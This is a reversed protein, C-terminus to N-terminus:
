RGPGGSTVTTGWGDYVGGDAEALRNFRERLSRLAGLEPVLDRTAFCLWDEGDGERSVETRFGESELTHAARLAAPQDPFYLFFEVEHPLSLDSGARALEDLPAADPDAVRRARVQALHGRLYLYLGLAGLLLLFSLSM